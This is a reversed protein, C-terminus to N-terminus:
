KAWPPRGAVPHTHADVPSRDLPDRGFKNEGLTGSKFLQMLGLIVAVVFSTGWGVLFITPYADLKTIEPFWFYGPVFFVNWWGTMNMDHFRRISTALWPWVLLLMVVLSVYGYQTAGFSLAPKDLALVGDLYIAFWTLAAYPIVFALWFAKRSIRGRVKLYFQLGRM